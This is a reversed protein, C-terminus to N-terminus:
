RDGPLKASNRHLLGVASGSSVRADTGKVVYRKTEAAQLCGEVDERAMREKGQKRMLAETAQIAVLM